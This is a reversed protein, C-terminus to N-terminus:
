QEGKVFADPVQPRKLVGLLVSIHQAENTNIAAATKRLNPDSLKPIADVYAAVATNELDVAFRLVDNQSRLRPFDRAYEEASKAKNATGGLDEIARTLGDAHEQEQELLQRGLELVDGRLLKAGATYAAIATNELDLASNLIAVDAEANVTDTEGGDGDDDDGGCAALFVASGGVTTLGALQFFDRRSRPDRLRMYTDGTM